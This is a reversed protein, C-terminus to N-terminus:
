IGKVSLSITCREGRYSFKGSGLGFARLGATDPRTSCFYFSPTGLLSTVLVQAVRGQERTETVAQVDLNTFTAGDVITTNGWRDKDIYAYSGPEADADPRMRGLVRIAGLALVGCKVTGGTKTLTLTVECNAFQSIGTLVLDTLPAFPDFFYEDYDGPMSGELNGTYSFVVNGGPQDKVVFSVSDADLGALYADTIAGPRLVVTLSAAVATQTSVKKDFMAWRNTPGYDLWSVNPSTQNLSNTPDKGTNNDLQSQYVRHTASSICFAGSAFTAGPTWEPYDAETATSSTLMAPTIQVAALVCLM